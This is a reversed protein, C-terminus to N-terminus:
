VHKMTSVHECQWGRIVFLPIRNCPGPTSSKIQPLTNFLIQHWIKYSFQKYRSGWQTFLFIPYAQKHKNIQQISPINSWQKNRLTPIADVNNNLLIVLTSYIINTDICSEGYYVTFAVLKSGIGKIAICQWQRQFITTKWWPVLVQTIVWVLMTFTLCERRSAQQWSWPQSMMWILRVCVLCKWSLFTEWVGSLLNSPSYPYTTGMCM